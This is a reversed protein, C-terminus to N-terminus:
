WWGSRRSARGPTVEVLDGLKVAAVLMAVLLVDVM